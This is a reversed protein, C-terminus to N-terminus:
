SHLWYHLLQRPPPSPRPTQRQIIVDDCLIGLTTVNSASYELHATFMTVMAVLVVMDLFKGQLYGVVKTALTVVNLFNVIILLTAQLTGV